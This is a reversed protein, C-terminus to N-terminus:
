GGTFERYWGQIDVVGEKILARALARVAPDQIQGLLMEELSSASGTPGSADNFAPLTEASPPPVLESFTEEGEPGLVHGDPVFLASGDGFPQRSTDATPQTTMPPTPNTPTSAAFPSPVGLGTSEEHSTSEDATPQEAIPNLGAKGASDTVPAPDPALNPEAFSTDPAVSTDKAFSTDEAFSTDKAFSLPEVFPEPETSGVNEPQPESVQPTSLPSTLPPTSDEFPAGILPNENYFRAIAALIQSRPALATEIVCSTLFQIEEIAEYDMAEAMALLITNESQRFPIVEHGEIVSRPIKSMLERDIVRNSVDITRMRERRALFDNLRTEDVFGLKRIIEALKGGLSQQYELATKMQADSLLDERLLEQSLRFDDASLGEEFPDPTQSDVMVDM